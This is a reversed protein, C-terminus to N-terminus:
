INKTILVIWRFAWKWKTSCYNFDLKAKQLYKKWDNYQFGRYISLVGDHKILRNNFFLPTILKFAFLAIKSRQLDNIIVAQKVALSSMKLFKIIQEDTLHHCTLTTIIIDVSNEPIIYNEPDVLKFELNSYKKTPFKNQAFSIADKSSDIGVIKCDPYLKALKASFFGGGCGFDIILKPNTKFKSKVKKLAWLNTSDGGLYRSIKDLLTLCENYEKDTYHPKGLDIIELQTSRNQM